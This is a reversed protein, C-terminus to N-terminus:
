FNVFNYFCKSLITFFISLINFFNSLISFNVLYFIYIGCFKLSLLHKKYNSSIIYFCNLKTKKKLKAFNRLSSIKFFFVNQGIKEFIQRFQPRQKKSKMNRREIIKLKSKIHFTKLIAVYTVLNSFQLTVFFAISTSLPPTPASTHRM